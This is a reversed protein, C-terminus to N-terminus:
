NLKTVSTVELERKNTNFNFSDLVRIKIAIDEVESSCQYTETYTCKAYAAGFLGGCISRSTEVLKCKTNTNAEINAVTSKVENAFAGFAMVSLAAAFIFKM